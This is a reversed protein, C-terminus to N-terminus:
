VDQGSRFGVLFTNRPADPLLASLGKETMLAGTGLQGADGFEPFIARGVVRLTATNLGIRANVFDGVTTDLTKMTRAGLAIEGTTRPARGAVITPLANGKEQELGLADVREAGGFDIQTVIGQSLSSVVPDSRLPPTFANALEPLNPQGLKVDWNWGYRSPN